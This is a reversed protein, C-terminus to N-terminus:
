GEKLFEVLDRDKVYEELIAKVYSFLIDDMTYVVTEKASFINLDEENIEKSKKEIFKEYAVLNGHAINSRQAYINTLNNKIENLNKNKDNLYILLGAKLKFQKSISDEINFRSTDPNRTLLMEIISVLTVLRWRSDEIKNGAVSLLSGVYLLKDISKTDLISELIHATEEIKNRISFFFRISIETDRGRYPFCSVAWSTITANVHADIKPERIEDISTHLLFSANSSLEELPSRLLVSLLYSYNVIRESLKYIPHDSDLFSVWGGEGKAYLGEHQKKLEDFAGKDDFRAIIWMKALFEFGNKQSNNKFFEKLYKDSKSYEKYLQKFASRITVYNAPKSYASMPLRNPYGYSYMINPSDLSVKLYNAILEIEEISRPNDLSIGLKESLIIPHEIPHIYRTLLFNM